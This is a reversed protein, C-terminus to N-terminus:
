DPPNNFKFSAASNGANIQVSKSSSAGKSDTVRLLATYSGKQTYTFSPNKVDTDIIGDSQFDWSYTLADGDPDTTGESSFKVTLPLSGSTVDSSLSVVPARNTDVGTYDVRVLKGTGVNDPCCGAGYELIYLQGDPGIKLDIFGA